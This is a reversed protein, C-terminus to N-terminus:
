LQHSPGHTIDVPEDEGLSRMRPHAPADPRLGAKRHHNVEGIARQRVRALRIPGENGEHEELDVEEPSGPGSTTPSLLNQLRFRLAQQARVCATSAANQLVDEVVEMASRLAVDMDRETIALFDARDQHEQDNLM